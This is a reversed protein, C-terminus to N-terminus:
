KKIEHAYLWCRVKRNNPVRILPPEYQLCLSLKYPCIHKYKCGRNNGPEVHDYVHILSGHKLVSILSKTYPHLPENLVDKISGEEVIQGSYMILIRDCVHRALEIDHTIFLLTFKNRCQLKLLIHIIEAQTSPDLMSTPEDAILLEPKVALARAIIARQLEGGSVERPRRSLIEPKLKVMGVLDYVYRKEENSTTLKLIRLPEAISDYLKWRHDLANEPHQPIYQLKWRVRRLKEKSLSTLEIDKYYVKGKDPKLILLLLKALTTKGSGSEGVLCVREGHLLTLDVNNVAHIKRSRFLGHHFIKVLGVARLLSLYRNSYEYNTCLSM